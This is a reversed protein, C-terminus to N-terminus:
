KTRGHQPAQWFYLLQYHENGKTFWSRSLLRGRDTLSWNRSIILFIRAILVSRMNYQNLDCIVCNCKSKQSWRLSYHECNRVLLVTNKTIFNRRMRKHINDRAGMETARRCCWRCACWSCRLSISTPEFSHGGPWPPQGGRPVSWTSQKSASSSSPLGKNLPFVLFGHKAGASASTSHRQYAPNESYEQSHTPSLSSYQLSGALARQKSPYSRVLITSFPPLVKQFQLTM